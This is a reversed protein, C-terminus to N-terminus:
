DTKEDLDEVVATVNHVVGDHIMRILPRVMTWWTPLLLVTALVSTHELWAKTTIRVQRHSRNPHIKTEGPVLVEDICVSVALKSIWTYDECAWRFKHWELTGYLTPAERGMPPVLRGVCIEHRPLVECGETVVAGMREVRQVASNEIGGISQDDYQLATRAPYPSIVDTRRGLRLWGVDGLTHLSCTDRVNEPSNSSEVQLRSFKRFIFKYVPSVALRRLYAADFIDNVSVSVPVSVLEQLKREQRFNNQKSTSHNPFAQQLLMFQKREDADEGIQQMSQQMSQQMGQHKTQKTKHDDGMEQRREDGMQQQRREDADDFAANGANDSNRRMTSLMSRRM